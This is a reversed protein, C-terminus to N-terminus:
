VGRLGPAVVPETRAYDCSARYLVLLLPKLILVFRPSCKTFLFGGWNILDM